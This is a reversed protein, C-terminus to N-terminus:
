LFLFINPAVCARQLAFVNVIHFYKEAQSAFARWKNPSFVMKSSEDQALADM